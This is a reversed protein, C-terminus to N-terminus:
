GDKEQDTEIEEEVDVETEEETDNSILRYRDIIRESKQGYDAAHLEEM